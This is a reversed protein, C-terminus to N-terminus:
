RALPVSKLWVEVLFNPTHDSSRRSHNRQRLMWKSRTGAGPDLRSQDPIGSLGTDRSQNASVMLFVM